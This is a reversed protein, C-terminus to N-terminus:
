KWGVFEKHSILRSIILPQHLLCLPPLNLLFNFLPISLSSLRKLNHMQTLPMLLINLSQRHHLLMLRLMLRIKLLYNLGSQNSLLFFEPPFSLQPLLLKHFLLILLREWSHEFAHKSVAWLDFIRLSGIKPIKLLMLQGFVHTLAWNTDGVEVM